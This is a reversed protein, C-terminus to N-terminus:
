AKKWVGLISKGLKYMTLWDLLRSPPVLFRDWFLIHNLTPNAQRLLFRNGLSALMGVSDLYVMRILRCDPPSCASLAARNYRRVHGVARDFPAYLWQHAPALVIITGGAQLLASARVLEQRDDEIHELVDLYLISDFRRDARLTATTGIEIQCHAMGPQDRFRERMRSVLAPDPELCTWSAIQPGALFHTSAGLGAGVELVHGQVYSRIQAAWYRKWNEARAFVDLEQGVYSQTGTM